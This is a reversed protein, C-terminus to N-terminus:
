KDFLQGFDVGPIYTYETDQDDSPECVVHVAGITQACGINLEFTNDQFSVGGCVGSDSDQAYRISLANSGVLASNQEFTNQYFILGSDVPDTMELVIIGKLSVNKEFVNNYFFMSGTQSRASILSRVQHYNFFYDSDNNLLQRFNNTSELYSVPDQLLYDSDICGDYPAM